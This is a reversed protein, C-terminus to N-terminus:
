TTHNVCNLGPSEEDGTRREDVCVRFFRRRPCKSKLRGKVVRSSVFPGLSRRKVYCM